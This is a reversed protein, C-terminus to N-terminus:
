RELTHVPEDLTAFSDVVKEVWHQHLSMREYLVTAGYLGQRHGQDMEGVAVGLLWLQDGSELLAPGGSDGLGPIGEFEVAASDPTSPDDFAFRLQEDARIVTNQAFRLRGDNTRIGTSGIGSYGWGLFTVVQNLEDDAAYLSVPLVGSVATDLELLALDIQRRQWTEGAAGPWQPHFHVRRVFYTDGGIVVEYPQGMRWAKYLATEEVCHAATVAWRAEILTAVCVKRRDHRELPFVAPYESETALYQSYGTDHRMVIAAAPVSALLMLCMVAQQSVRASTSQFRLFQLFELLRKLWSNTM